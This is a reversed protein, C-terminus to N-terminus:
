QCGEARQVQRAPHPGMEPSIKAEKKPFKAVNYDYNGGVSLVNRKPDRVFDICAMTDPGYAVTDGANLVINADLGRREIDQWVAKLARFDGHIDSIAAIQM